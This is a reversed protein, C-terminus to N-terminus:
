EGPRWSERNDRPICAIVVQSSGRAEKANRRKHPGARRRKNLFPWSALALSSTAHSGIESVSVAGASIVNFLAMNNRNRM